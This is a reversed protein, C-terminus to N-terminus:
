AYSIHRHEIIVNYDQQRMHIALAETAAVSRHKGGTCGLAITLRYRGEHEYLPLTTDLFTFFQQKFAQASTEKFVFDTVAADKGTLEKLEEIFYPNPLFRLDFVLDAEPPMAYKFGFSILNVKMAHGANQVNSWHHQILHRLDHLSYQTTDLLLDAIAKIPQLRTSDHQLAEALTIGERELPHPRRTTAYRRMIEPTSAELHLLRVHINKSQLDAIIKPLIAPLNTGRHNLGLAIGNFAANHANHFLSVLDPILHPPVGDATFFHMDEFVQLATSKGAGSLATILLVCPTEKTHGLSTNTDSPRVNLINRHSLM